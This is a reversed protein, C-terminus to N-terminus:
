DKKGSPDPIKKLEGVHDRFQAGTM